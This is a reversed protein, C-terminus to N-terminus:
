QRAEAVVSAIRAFDDPKLSAGGVLAGDIGPQSAFELITEGTVSGGYLIRVVEAIADGYLARVEARAAAITERADEGRAPVGTGIAWIPEYAIATRAAEALSVGDFAARLQARVFEDAGSRRRVDLSEGVALIPVLGAELARKLKANVRADTDSRDRRVESHGVIVYEVLDRLMWASVGSTHAGADQEHVDQAALRLHAGAIADRVSALAVYAPAIAVEVGSLAATADRVARALAVAEGVSPPNM